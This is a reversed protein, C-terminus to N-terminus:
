RAWRIQCRSALEDVAAFYLGTVIDPARVPDPEFYESIPGAERALSLAALQARVLSTFVDCHGHGGHAARECADLERIRRARARAPSGAAPLADRAAGRLRRARRLHRQAAPLPEDDAAHGACPRNGDAAWVRGAAHRRDASAAAAARAADLGLRDARGLRTGARRPLGGVSRPACRGRRRHRRRLVAGLRAPQRPPFKGRRLEPVVPRLARRPDRAAADSADRPRSRRPRRRGRAALMGVGISTSALALLIAGSGWWEAKPTGVDLALLLIAGLVSLGLAVRFPWIIRQGGAGAGVLVRLLGPVLAARRGIRPTAYVYVLVGFAVVLLAIVVRYVWYPAAGVTAFLLKFIPVPLAILHENHPRLLTDADWSRRNIFITWEDYLLTTLHRGLYLIVVFAVAAGIAMVLNPSVRERLPRAPVSGVVRRRLNAVVSM